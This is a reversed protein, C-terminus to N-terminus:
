IVFLHKIITSYAMFFQPSHVPIRESEVNM